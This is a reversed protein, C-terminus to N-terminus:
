AFYKNFDVRIVKDEKKAPTIQIISKKNQQSKMNRKPKESEVSEDDSDSEEIIITKKKPKKKKQIVIVEEEESDSEEIIPKKILSQKKKIIDEHKSKVQKEKKDLVIIEKEISKSKINEKRKEQAKKFAEIQKESRPKKLTSSQLFSNEVPKKEKVLPVEEIDDNDSEVEENDTINEEMHLNKVM